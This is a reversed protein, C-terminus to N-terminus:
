PWSMLVMPGTGPLQRFGAPRLHLQDLIRWLSVAHLMSSGLWVLVAGWAVQRRLMGDFGAAVAVGLGVVGSFLYRGQMGPFQEALTM